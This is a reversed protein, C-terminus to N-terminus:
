GTAGAPLPDIVCSTFPIQIKEHPLDDQDDPDGDGPYALACAIPNPNGSGGVYLVVLPSLDGLQGAALTGPLNEFQIQVQIIGGPAANISQIGALDADLQTPDGNSGVLTLTGARTADQHVKLGTINQLTYSTGTGVVTVTFLAAPTREAASAPFWGAALLTLYILARTLVRM